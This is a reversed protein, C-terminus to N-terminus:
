VPSRIIIHLGMNKTTIAPRQDGENLVDFIYQSLELKGGIAETNRNDDHNNIVLNQTLEGDEDQPNNNALLNITKDDDPATTTTITHYNSKCSCICDTGM